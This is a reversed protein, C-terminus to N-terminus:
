PIPEPKIDDKTFQKIVKQHYKDDYIRVRVEKIMAIKLGGKHM